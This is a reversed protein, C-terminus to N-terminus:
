QVIGALAAEDPTTVHYGVRMEDYIAGAIDRAKAARWDNRVRDQILDFDPPDAPWKRLVRVAHSGFGSQVPAVWQNVEIESLVEFVGTGMVSRVTSAPVSAMGPPLLSPQGLSKPDEGARLARLVADVEQQEPAPGIFVQEFSLRPPPTYRALNQDFYDRLEQDGPVASAAASEMLFTMKQVLRMRIVADGQDMSLDRAERALIEERVTRKMIQQLEQVTPSRSWTKRFQEVLQRTQADTIVIQKAPDGSNAPPTMVRYLGFIAVGILLFHLLPEKLCRTLIQM